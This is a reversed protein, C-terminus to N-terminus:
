PCRGKTWSVRVSLIQRAGLSVLLALVDHSDALGDSEDLLDVALVARGGARRQSADGNGRHELVREGALCGSGVKFREDVIRELEPFQTLSM